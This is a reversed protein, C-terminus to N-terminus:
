CASTPTSNSRGNFATVLAYQAPPLDGSWSRAHWGGCRRAVGPASFRHLKTTANTFTIALGCERTFRRRINEEWSLSFSAQFTDRVRWKELHIRAQRYTGVKHDADFWNQEPWLMTRTRRMEGQAWQPEATDRGGGAGLVLNIEVAEEDEM